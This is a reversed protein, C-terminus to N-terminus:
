VFKCGYCNIFPNNALKGVDKVMEVKAVAATKEDAKELDPLSALESNQLLLDAPVRAEVTVEAPVDASSRCTSPVGAPM